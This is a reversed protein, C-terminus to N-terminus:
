GDQDIFPGGHLRRFVDKVDELLEPPTHELFVHYVDEDGPKFGTFNIFQHDPLYKVYKLYFARLASLWPDKGMVDRLTLLFHIGMSYRCRNWLFGFGTDRLNNLAQLNDLGQEACYRPFIPDPLNGGKSIYAEVVLACGEQFWSPAKRCYYHATEHYMSSPPVTGDTTDLFMMFGIHSGRLFGPEFVYLIVHEVPFPLQWFEESGRVAREMIELTNQYNLEYHGVVWLNVPGALPLEISKGAITYPDFLRIAEEERSGAAILYVREKEVLGDIIWPEMLLRNLQDPNRALIRRMVNITRLDLYNPPYPTLNLIQRAIQADALESDPSSAIFALDGVGFVAELPTLGDAVWPKTSLEIALDTQDEVVLSYFDGVVSSEWIEVKDALWPLRVVLQAVEPAQEDLKNLFELVYAEEETMSDDFVWPWNAVSRALETNNDEIKQLDQLALSEQYNLDVDYDVGDQYWASAEVLAMLKPTPILSTSFGYHAIVVLLKDETLKANTHDAVANLAEEHEIDGSNKIDYRAAHSNDVFSGTTPSDGLTAIWLSAAKTVNALSELKELLVTEGEDLGDDLWPRDVVANFLTRNQGALGALVQVTDADSPELTALFAMQLIQKAAEEDSETLAAITEVVTFEHKNLGDVVWPKNVLVPAPDMGFLVEIDVLQQVHPREADDIGDAVWPLSTIASAM